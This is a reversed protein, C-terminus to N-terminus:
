QDQEVVKDVISNLAKRSAESINELPNGADEAAVVQPDIPIRGLFPLGKEEALAKGGGAKFIDVEQGCHPCVFGSMNEIIGLVPIHGLQCFSLSKRVDALAVKQPTTMIIAEADKITQVVTLPEDGTGPPCDIILYDLPDWKTDSMFQRIAGVKLPGRWILADDQQALFGQASLFELHDSYRFPVLKEGEVQVHKDMYGLMGAVSPGHLDVDMLGVQYGRESLLLALDVSVTSKGVGGKGSMVVIKHKVHQLFDAIAADQPNQKPNSECGSCHSHDCHDCESM